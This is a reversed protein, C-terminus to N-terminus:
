YKEFGGTFTCLMTVKRKVLRPLRVSAACRCINEFQAVDLAKAVFSMELRTKDTKAWTKLNCSFIGTSRVTTAAVNLQARRTSASYRFKKISLGEWWQLVFKM